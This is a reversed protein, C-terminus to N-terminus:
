GTGGQPPVDAKEMQAEASESKVRPLYIEFTTGQGPASYAYIFGDNQKVIGYVTSLGLGTGKGVEKTTFFPEFINSLTERDMGCGDDRVSLLVYDGPVCGAHDACFREDLTVNNMEISIEGMGAIADRANVMLNALLRDIQAPDIKVKWLDHGPRLVLEIGEGTLQRLMKLMGSVTANLDLTTPKVVQKRAFTLLQRVVEASRQAAKFIEKLNQYGPGDPDMELMALEANGIIVGLFNNFDHAVGGALRGVTEMKKAAEARKRDMIERRLDENIKALQSARAMIRQEIAEDLGKIETKAQKLDATEVVEWNGHRKAIAFRHARAVDSLEPAKTVALPYSCLIIMQKNGISEDLRKEYAAFAKWDMATLFAENGNARMGAYGRELAQALKEEWGHIVRELDLVGDKIYWETHALIEINGAELHRDADPFARRLANKMEEESRPPFVVWMCYENNELGTKFYPILIDLMDEKTEYFHCLHTGWPRHGVVGIGTKRLETTM